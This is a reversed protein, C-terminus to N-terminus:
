QALTSGLYLITGQTPISFKGLNCQGGKTYMGLLWQMPNKPPGYPYVRGGTPYLLTM